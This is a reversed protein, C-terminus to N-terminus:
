PEMYAAIMAASLRAIDSGRAQAAYWGVTEALALDLPVRPYWGLASQAKSSDVGLFRAEYPAGDQAAAQWGATAGGHEGWLRVLEDAIEAVPAAKGPGPGFNWAGRWAPHGNFLQEALMMYGSLPDLVYQWPRTAGPNRVTLATGAAFARMADPVLRDEGWDGGGIVNGARVTAVALPYDEGLGHRFAEVVMETAAKSAGYPERGGLRDDESFARGDDRNDYVKDSTVVVVARVSPTLRAAELVHATGIVNSRYTGVPDRAARRVLAQAALHFVVEPRTIQMCYRLPTLDRIDGNVPTIRGAVGAATYIGAAHEPPLAFGNVRAGMQALWLALWGGKFGTHGTVFVRRNRWFHPDPRSM